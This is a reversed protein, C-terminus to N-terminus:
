QSHKHAWDLDKEVQKALKVGRAFTIKLEALRRIAEEQLQQLEKSKANVMGSSDRLTLRKVDPNLIM